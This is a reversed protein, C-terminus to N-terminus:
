SVNGKLFNTFEHLNISVFLRFEAKVDSIRHIIQPRSFIIGFRIAYTMSAYYCLKSYSTSSSKELFSWKSHVCQYIQFHPKLKRLKRVSEFSIQDRMTEPSDRKASSLCIRPYGLSKRRSLGPILFYGAADVILPITRVLAAHIEHFTTVVFHYILIPFKQGGRHSRRTM